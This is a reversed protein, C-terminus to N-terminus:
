QPNSLADIVAPPHFLRRSGVKVSPIRQETVMRDLTPLSIGLLKAMCQRDVMRPASQAALLERIREVIEDVIERRLEDPDLNRLLWDVQQTRAGTANFKGDM